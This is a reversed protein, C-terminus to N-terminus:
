AQEQEHAGGTEQRPRLLAKALYWFVRMDEFLYRKGLRRPEQMMRHFWELGADQMWRPARSRDGSIIDFASGIGIGVNAGSERLHRQIWSEQRPAGLALLIIKCDLSRIDRVLKESLDMTLPYPTKIARLAAQPYHLRMKAAARDATDGLGGLLAVTCGLEQSVQACAWVLDTGSVRRKIPNGLLSALWVIPKGDAVVLTSAWLIGAFAQDNRAKIIFDISGPVIQLYGNGAVASRISAVTESFSIADFPCGLVDVRRIGEM